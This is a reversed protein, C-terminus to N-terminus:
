YIFPSSSSTYLSFSAAYLFIRCQYFHGKRRRWSSFVGLTVKSIEQELCLTAIISCSIGLLQKGGVGM